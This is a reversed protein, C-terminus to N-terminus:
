LGVGVLSQLLMSIMAAALLLLASQILIIICSDVARPIVTALKWAVLATATTADDVFPIPPPSWWGRWWLCCCCFESAFLIRCSAPIVLIADDADVDVDDISSALSLLSNSPAVLLKRGGSVSVTPTPSPGISYSKVLKNCPDCRDTIEGVVVLVYPHGGSNM